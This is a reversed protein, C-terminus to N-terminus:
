KTEKAAAERAKRGIPRLDSRYSGFTFLIGAKAVMNLRSTPIMKAGYSFPIGDIGAYINLVPFRFNLAAGMAMGMNTYGGSVALGICDVPTIDIGVRIDQYKIDGVTVSALLGASLRDYFPMRYKAGANITTPLMRFSKTQELNEKFKLESSLQSVIEKFDGSPTNTNLDIGGFFKDKWAIGGINLVAVDIMFGNLPTDWHFGLDVAAGFGSPKLYDRWNKSVDITSLDLYGAANKQITLFNSASLSASGNATVGTVDPDTFDVGLKDLKVDASAVGILGKLKIGISFQNESGFKMSYGLAAEIFNRSCVSLENIAYNPVDSGCKALEMVSKPFIASNLSKLNLEITVFSRKARFGFGFLNVGASANVSNMDKFKGLFEQPTVQSNFGNVLQGNKPFLFSALGLNSQPAVTIGGLVPFSFFGTTADCPQLAPNIRNFYVYNELFYGTTLEQAGASACIFLPFLISLFLKKM